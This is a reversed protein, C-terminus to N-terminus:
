AAVSNKQESIEFRQSAIDWNLSNKIASFYDSKKIGYDIMYAHEWGDIALLIDQAIFVGRHHEEVINNRLSGDIHSQCLLVWGSTTKLGALADEHWLDLSGFADVLAEDLESSPKTIKGTLNEFYLQHLYTGNFAVAHRRHLESIEAYSYNAEKKSANPLKEEIENLKKVYGKYLEFHHNLQKESLGELEGILHDFNKAFHIM